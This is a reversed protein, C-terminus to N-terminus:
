RQCIFCFFHDQSMHQFLENADYFRRNCFGCRPHGKFAEREEVPDVESGGSAEHLLLQSPSYLRQDSVFMQRAHWLFLADGNAMRDVM